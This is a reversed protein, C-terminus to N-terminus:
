DIGSNFKSFEQFIGKRSAYNIVSQITKSFSNTVSYLSILDELSQPNNENLIYVSIKLKFSGVFSTMIQAILAPLVM